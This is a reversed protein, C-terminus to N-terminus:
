FRARNLPLMHKYVSNTLRSDGGLRSALLILMRTVLPVFAKATCPLCKKAMYKGAYAMIETSREEETPHGATLRM